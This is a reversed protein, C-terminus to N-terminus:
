NTRRITVVFRENDEIGPVEVQTINEITFKAPLTQIEEETKAGKLLVYHGQEALLHECVLTMRDLATFARSTICAFTQAHYDEVPSHVITVNELKLSLVVHRLFQIRKGLSDLLTFHIQPNVQAFFLALPIGPLGAGTGVDLVSEYNAFYPAVVLSDFLHKILMQEPDKIATLNYAQNWKHMLELYTLFKETMQPTVHEELYPNTKVLQTFKNQLQAKPFELTRRAM